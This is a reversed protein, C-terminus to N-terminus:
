TSTLDHAHFALRRQAEIHVRELSHLQRIDAEQSADIGSFAIQVNVSAHQLEGVSGSLRPSRGLKHYM